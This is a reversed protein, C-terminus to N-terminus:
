TMTRHHLAEHELHAIARINRRPLSSSARKSDGSRKVQFVQALENGSFLCDGSNHYSGVCASRSYNLKDREVLKCLQRAPLNVGVVNFLCDLFGYSCEPRTIDNLVIPRLKVTFVVSNM